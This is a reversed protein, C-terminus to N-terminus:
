GCLGEGAPCHPYETGSHRDPHGTFCNIRVHNNEKKLYAYRDYEKNKNRVKINVKDNENMKSLLDNVEKKTNVKVGNISIIEDGVLLNNNKSDLIYGVYLYNNTINVKKYLDSIYPNKTLTM